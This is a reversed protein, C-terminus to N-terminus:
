KFELSLRGAPGSYQLVLDKPKHKGDLSFYLLGSLPSATKKEPLTKAKLLALLPDEKKMDGTTVTADASSTDATSSGFSGGSGPFPIGMGPGGWQPNGQDAGVGGGGTSRVILAAHGAIQSPAFPQSKQGDKYSRLVFDDQSVALPTAGKPSLDVKVVIFYGGLDSGLLQKVDDKGCYVTATIALKENGAQSVPPGKEAAALLSACLLFCCLKNM